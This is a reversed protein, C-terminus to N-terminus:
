PATMSAAEVDIPAPDLVELAFTSALLTCLFVLLLVPRRPEKFPLSTPM